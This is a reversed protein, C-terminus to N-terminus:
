SAFANRQGGLEIQMSTNHLLSVLM